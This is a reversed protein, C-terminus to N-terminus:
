LWVRAAVPVAGIVHAIALPLRGPPRLKFADVPAIVPVGVVAVVKLKVTLAVFLAPFAVLASLMTILEAGTAGVIVVAEKGAPVTPVAYLWVRAAVPVAGIVHAIDTPLRGVPRLKVGAVPTILPVGVVAAVDLKVILAVLLAPFAVLASLMTMLEAGNAGVIVVAEKGAPVTPVAYLWVRAAVPVAGIVHAIALPLRGPPRLKFVVLPTILPVGVVAAVNLKETLAVLLTPFAVLASLMTILVLATAGVIVV